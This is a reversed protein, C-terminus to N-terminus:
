NSLVLTNANLPQLVDKTSLAVLQGSRWVLTNVKQTVITGIPRYRNDSTFNFRMQMHYQERRM